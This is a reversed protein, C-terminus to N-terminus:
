FYKYINKRIASFCEDPKDYHILYNKKMELKKFYDIKDIKIIDMLRQNFENFDCNNISCIGKIPFDYLYNNTLNCSLIKNGSSINERLLTSM